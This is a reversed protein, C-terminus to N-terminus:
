TRSCLSSPYLRECSVGSILSASEVGAPPPSVRRFKAHSKWPGDPGVFSSTRRHHSSRCYRYLRSRGRTPTNVHSSTRIAPEAATFGPTSKSSGGPPDQATEGRWFAGLFTAGAIKDGTNRGLNGFFVHRFLRAALGAVGATRWLHKEGGGVAARFGPIM